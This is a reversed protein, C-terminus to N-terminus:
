NHSKNKDFIAILYGSYIWFIISIFSIIYLLSSELLNILVIGLVLAFLFSYQVKNRYSFSDLKKIFFVIMFIIFLAFLIMAPIGNICATEFFINHLGGADLGQLYAVRYDNLRGVKNVSGVGILPYVKLMNIASLWLYERSTLIKHLINAPLTFFGIISLITPVIVLSLRFYINKFKYVLFIFILALFPFYASRAHSALVSIFQIGLNFILFYKLYTNKAKYILYLSIMFSLIAAIGFANENKFLGKYSEVITNNDIIVKYTIIINTFIMFLSVLSLLSTFFVYFYSIVDIEKILKEKSKYTDISFIVTTIMLNVLWIKLNENLKYQTFNLYLTLLLFLYLFIEFFFIRRKRFFLTDIFNIGIYLLGILLVIKNLYTFGNFDSLATAFCLGIFIYALKIYFKNTIEKLM